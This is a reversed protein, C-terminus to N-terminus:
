HIGGEWPSPLDPDHFSWEKGTVDSDSEDDSDQQQQISRQLIRDMREQEMRLKEQEYEELEPPKEPFGAEDRIRNELERDPFLPMGASSANRIFEGLEGLDTSAIRGPRLRPRTAPDFGNLDWLRTILQTDLTTAITELWGEAATLFLDIKSSSLAYSGRDSIGLMIFDALFTRAIDYQYRKTVKDTDVARSGRASVLEFDVLRHQSFAGDADRWPDSPLIIYGQENFKVDRGMRMYEQVVAKDKDTQSAMLERPLRIVPLGNLEREIAIMEIEQVHKLMYWSRYANRLASRGEPNGGAHKPRFLISKEIPIYRLAGGFPPMQWLGHLVGAQEDYEWHDLSTQERLALTRIGVKGDDFKSGRSYLPFNSDVLNSPIAMRPKYIVEFWAWGYHLMTLADSIFEDWTIEMDEFLVGNLWQAAKVAEDSPYDKDDDEGIAPECKWRVKRFLMEVSFLISGIISDNEVMERYVKQGRTGKLQDLFEQYVFGSQIRLGSVGLTQFPSNPLWQGQMKQAM